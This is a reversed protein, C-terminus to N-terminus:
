KIKTEQYQFVGIGEPIPKGNELKGKCYKQLTQWHISRDMDYPINNSILVELVDDSVENIVARSKFLSDIKTVAFDDGGEEKIMNRYALSYNKDSISAKLKDEVIVKEGTSLRIESLGVENLITPIQTRSVYELKEKKGKLQEELTSIEKEIDKYEKCFGSLKLLSDQSVEKSSGFLDEM